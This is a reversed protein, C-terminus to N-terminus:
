LQASVRVMATSGALGADERNRVVLDIAGWSFARYRAGWGLRWDVRPRGDIVSPGFSGELLFSTRPYSPPSWALAGFPRVRDVLPRTSLRGAAGDLDWLGLGLTAELRGAAGLSWGDSAAVRLEAAEVRKGDGFRELTLDLAPQHRFWEQAEARVRFWAVQHREVAADRGTAGVMLRDDFGFGVAALAGFAAEVALVPDGRHSAGLMVYAIGRSAAARDIFRPSPAPAPADASAARPMVAVCALAALGGRLHLSM